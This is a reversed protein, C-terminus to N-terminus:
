KEENKANREFCNTLNFFFAESLEFSVMVSIKLSNYMTNTKDMYM